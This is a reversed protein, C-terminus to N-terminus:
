DTFYVVWPESALDHCFKVWSVASSRSEVFFEIGTSSSQKSSISNYIVGSYRGNDILVTGIKMKSYVGTDSLFHAYFLPFSNTNSIPQELGKSLNGNQNSSEVIADSIHAISNIAKGWVDKQKVQDRYDLCLWCVSCSIIGLSFSFVNKINM